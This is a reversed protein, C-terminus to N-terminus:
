SSERNGTAYGLSSGRRLMVSARKAPADAIPRGWNGTVAHIPVGGKTGFGGKTLLQRMNLGALSVKGSWWDIYAVSEPALPQISALAKEPAGPVRNPDLNAHGPIARELAEATHSTRPPPIALYDVITFPEGVCSGCEGEAAEAAEDDGRRVIRVRRSAWPLRPPHCEDPALDYVRAGPRKKLVWTDCNAPNYVSDVTDVSWSFYRMLLLRMTLGHTVVLLASDDGGSIAGKAAGEFRTRISYGSCLSEWLDSARDYVDASSEGNPRRYYFRGVKQAEERATQLDEQTQLNGFEQERVRPDVHVERVAHEGFTEMLACLTQQTREFPSLVVTIVADPGLLERLRLGARRAQERGKETLEILNDAKHALITSDVNAESEGHRLLIIREPMQEWASALMADDLADCIIRRIRKRRLYIVAALAAAAATAITARSLGPM